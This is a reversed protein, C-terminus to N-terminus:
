EACLTQGETARSFTLYIKNTLFCSFDNRAEADDTQQDKPQSGDSEGQLVDNHKEELAPHEQFSISKRFVQDRGALKVAGDAFRFKFNNCNKPMLVEKANLTRAYIESADLNEQEEIEAVLVDRKWM